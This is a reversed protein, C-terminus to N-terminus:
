SFLFDKKFLFINKHFLLDKPFLFRPLCPQILSILVSLEKVITHFKSSDNVSNRLNLYTIARLHFIRLNKSAKPNGEEHILKINSHIEVGLNEINTLPVESPNKLEELPRLCPYGKDGKRKMM